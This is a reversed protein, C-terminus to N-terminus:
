RNGLTTLYKYLEICARTDDLANHANFHYNMLISCAEELKPYKYDKYKGPLKCLNTSAKMTCIHNKIKKGRMGYRYCEGRLTLLDFDLNHAVLADASHTANLFRNLVEKIPLGTAYAMETTIGHVKSSEAPISFGDPKIVSYFNEKELLDEDVLIYCLSVLRPNNRNKFDNRDVPLGTTETDFFLLM